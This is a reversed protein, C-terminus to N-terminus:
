WSLQRFSRSGGGPAILELAEHAEGGRPGRMSSSSNVEPFGHWVTGALAGALVVLGLVLAVPHGAAQGLRRALGNEWQEARGLLRPLVSLMVLAGCVVGAAVLVGLQSLGPFRFLGLAAFSCATTAAAWTVGPRVRALAAGADGGARQWASFYLVGYDASLGILVAGCGVTLATLEGVAWGCIGLTVAFVLLLCGALAPLLRASRLVLWALLAILLTTLIASRRMDREMALSIEAVFAPEGTLLVRVGGGAAARAEERLGGLLAGLRRYDGPADTLRCALVATDGAGFVASL